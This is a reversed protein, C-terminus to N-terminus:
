HISIGVGIHFLTARPAAVTTATADRSGLKHWRADFGVGLHEGIFWRAGGGFNIAGGWGADATTPSLVGGSAEDWLNTVAEAETQRIRRIEM